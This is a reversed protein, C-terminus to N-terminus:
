DLAVNCLLVCHSSLSSAGIRGHNNSCVLLMRDLCALFVELLNPSITNAFCTEVSGMFLIFGLRVNPVQSTIPFLLASHKMPAASPTNLAQSILVASFIPRLPWWYHSQRRTSVSLRCTSLPCTLLEHLDLDCGATAM